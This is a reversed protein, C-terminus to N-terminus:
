VSGPPREVWPTIQGQGAAPLKGFAKNRKTNPVHYISLLPQIFPLDSSQISLYHPNISSHISTLTLSHTHTHTCTYISPHTTPHALLQISPSIPPNTVSTFYTSPHIPLHCCSSYSCSRCSTFDPIVISMQHNACQRKFPPPQFSLHEVLSAIASTQSNSSALLCPRTRPKGLYLLSPADGPNAPVYGPSVSTM